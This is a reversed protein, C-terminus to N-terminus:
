AGTFLLSDYIIQHQSLYESPSVDGLSSHPRLSNYKNRWVEIKTRADEISLFWHLNLCKDRFSGNFSEIYPNDNPKGSRSFNLTVQNEYAWQDLIKSIFDSGNEVQIREPLQVYVMCLRQVINTVDSGKTSEKVHIAMCARNFNDVVPWARFCRGDFHKDAVFDMDWSQHSDTLVVRDMRHAAARNRKPRNSLLNLGELRYLRYIRNHHVDWGERRLLTYIRWIRYRM